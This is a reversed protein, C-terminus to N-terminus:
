LLQEIAISIHFVRRCGWGKWVPTITFLKVREKGAIAITTQQKGKCVTPGLDPLGRRVCSFFQQSLRLSDFCVFFTMEVVQFSLM